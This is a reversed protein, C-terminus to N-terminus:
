ELIASLLGKKSSRTYARLVIPLVQSFIRTKGDKQVLLGKKVLERELDETTAGGEAVLAMANKEQDPLADFLYDFHPRVEYLFDRELRTRGEAGHIGSYKLELLHYCAMQLFLPFYGALEFVWRIEEEEFQIGVSAAPMEVLDRADEALLPGVYIKDFINLFPSGTSKSESITQLSAERFAGIISIRFRASWSRLFELLDQPINPNHVLVSFEDLLLVLRRDRGLDRGIRELARRSPEGPSTGLKESIEAVLYELFSDETCGAIFQMDLQAFVVDDSIEFRQREVPFELANLISSKGIRREGVLYLSQEGRIRTYISRLEKARGFFDDQNRIGTRNTYPNQIRPRIASM